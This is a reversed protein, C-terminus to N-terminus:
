TFTLFFGFLCCCFWGLSCPVITYQTVTFFLLFSGGAFRFPLADCAECCEEKIVSSAEALQKCVLVDTIAM